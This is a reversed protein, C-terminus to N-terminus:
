KESLYDYADVFEIEPCAMAMFRLIPLHGAGILVFIREEKSEAALQLINSFIRLNRNWWSTAGDAGPYYGDAAVKFDGILYHGLGLLLREPNNQYALTTRLPWVSKLSDDKAYLAFFMKSYLSNSYVQKHALAFSDINLEQEYGRAPADITFVKKHKMAAALRYCIQYIENAGPQYRNNIFEAYLSDHFKQWKPMNEIAVKTPKFTALLEVLKKVEAQREPSKINISYKPKYEDRGGDNFHFTGMIMVKSKKKNKFPATVSSVEQAFCPQFLWSSFLVVFFKVRKNNM